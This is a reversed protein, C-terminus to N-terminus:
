HRQRTPGARGAKGRAAHGTGRKHNNAEVVKVEDSDDVEDELGDPIAVPAKNPGLTKRRKPEEKRHQRGRPREEDVDEIEDMEMADSADEESATDANSDLGANALARTRRGNRMNERCHVCFKQLSGSIVQLLLCSLSSHARELRHKKM